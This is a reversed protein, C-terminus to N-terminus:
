EETTEDTDDLVVDYELEVVEEEVEVEQVVKNAIADKRIEAKVKDPLLEIVFRDDKRSRIVAYFGGITLIEDGKKLSDLMDARQQAQKKQNKSTFFMPIFMVAMLVILMLSSQNVAGFLFGNLM